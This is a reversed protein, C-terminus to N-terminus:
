CPSLAAVACPRTRVGPTESFEPRVPFTATQRFPDHEMLTIRIPRNGGRFRM